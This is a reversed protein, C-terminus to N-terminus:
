NNKIVRKKLRFVYINEVVMMAFTYILFTVLVGTAQERFIFCMALLAALSLILKMSKFVMFQRIFQKADAPQAMVAFPVAYLVLFFLPVLLHAKGAYEPFMVGLVVEGAVTMLLLMAFLILITKIKNM